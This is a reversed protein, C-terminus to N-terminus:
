AIYSCNRGRGIKIYKRSLTSSDNTITPNQILKVGVRQTSSDLTATINGSLVKVGIRTTSSDISVTPLQLVKVGVRTTSSDISITPLQSVKISKKWLSTDSFTAIMSSDAVKLADNTRKVNSYTGSNNKGRIEGFTQAGAMVPFLLAFIIILQKM